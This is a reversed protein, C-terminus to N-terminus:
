TNYTASASHEITAQLWCHRNLELRLRCGKGGDFLAESKGLLCRQLKRFFNIREGVVVKLDAVGVSALGTELDVAASEGQPLLLREVVSLVQRDGVHFTLREGEEGVMVDEAAVVGGHLQQGDASFGAEKLGLQGHYYPVKEIPLWALNPAMAAPPCAVRQDPQVTTPATNGVLLRHGGHFPRHEGHSIYHEILLIVKDTNRGPYVSGQNHQNANRKILSGFVISM